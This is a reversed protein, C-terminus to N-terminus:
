KFHHYKLISQCFQASNLAINDLAIFSNEIKNIVDFQIFFDSESKLLLYVSKWNIDTNQNFKTQYIVENTGNIYVKKVKLESYNISLYDFSFCSGIEHSNSIVETKLFDNTINKSYIFNGDLIQDLIIANFKYFYCFFKSSNLINKGNSELWQNNKELICYENLKDFSCKM